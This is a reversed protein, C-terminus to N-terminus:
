PRKGGFSGIYQIDSGASLAFLGGLEQAAAGYFSGSATGTMTGLFFPALNASSSILTGSFNSSGANYTLVGTVDLKPAAAGGQSNTATYNISRTGFNVGLTVNSTIFVQRNFGATYIGVSTGTYTASGSAPVSAAPTASGGVFATSSVIETTGRGDGSADGNNWIGYTMYSYGSLAPDAIMLINELDRSKITVVSPHSFSTTRTSGDTNNFTTTSLSGAAGIATQNSSSYTLDLALSGGSPTGINQV